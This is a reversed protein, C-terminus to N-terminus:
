GVISFINLKGMQQMEHFVDILVKIQVVKTRKFARHVYYDM